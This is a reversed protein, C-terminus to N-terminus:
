KLEKISINRFQVLAPPSQWEGDDGKSGHHQLGIPGREPLGPLEANEIVSIGNLVVNLRSGKLRIEFTNWEGIPNDANLRPVVGARVHPPMEENTRYGYVEGSGIPWCWINAQDGDPGRYLIGSDSDPVAIDIAKGDPGKKDSGDPMVIKTRPNVWPTEKIRWDVRLIFDGYEKESWLHKSGEAESEADYDIVGDVVKWHGNDGEPVKWGTFDKGNFLSLFGPPPDEGGAISAAPVLWAGVGLVLALIALTRVSATM